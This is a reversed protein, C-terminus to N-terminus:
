NSQDQNNGHRQQYEEFTECRFIPPSVAFPEGRFIMLPTHPINAWNSPHGIQATEVWDIDKHNTFGPKVYYWVNDKLIDALYDEKTKM